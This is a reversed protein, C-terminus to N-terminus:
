TNCVISRKAIDRYSFFKKNCEAISKMKEFEGNTFLGEISNKIEDVSDEYLFIVNGGRDVHTTGDWYKVIMPIGMGAVQEWYVSHRGPFAALDAMAFVPYSDESSLWGIYKVNNSCRKEVENKLEPAISGFVILKLKSNGSKNVADMLLLTQKKAFNIKGGTVILFDKEDIGYKKRYEDRIVPSSFKEVMDDDAGMPLFDIKEAPLGYVNRLFEVRAPLVGYWKKVFPNIRKIGYKYIIKHLINKSVFTKASNSFDAHSDVFLIVNPHNKLYKVVAGISLFQAGHMFIIDPSSEELKNYVGPYVRLKHVIKSPLYKIYPLRTVSIDYENVYSSPKIYGIHVGDVFTETSAIIEVDYGLQKHMKPLMNEQYSYNDIYFNALCLHTIKM